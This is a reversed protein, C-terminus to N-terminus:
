EPEPSPGLGLLRQWPGVEGFVAFTAVSAENAAVQLVEYREGTFGRRRRLVEISLTATDWEHATARRKRLSARDPEWRLTGAPTVTLCGSWMPRNSRDLWNAPVGAVIEGEAVRGALQRHAKDRAHRLLVATMPVATVVAVLKLVLYVSMTVGDGRDRIRVYAGILLSTSSVRIQAADEALDAGVDVAAGLAHCLDHDDGPRRSWLRSIRACHNSERAHAGDPSSGSRSSAPRCMAAWPAPM